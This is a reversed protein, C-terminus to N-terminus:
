RASTEATLQNALNPQCDPIQAAFARIFRVVGNPRERQPLHGCRPLLLTPVDPLHERFFELSGSPLFNDELGWILAAPVPVHRLDDPQVFQDEQMTAMLAAVFDRVTRRQFTEQFGRLGLYLLPRPIAVYFLPRLITGFMSRFVSWTSRLDRMSIREAFQQWADRGTTPAGGADLLVIGRVQEPASWALKVALWGGMSNGVILAPRGIVDRVFAEIVDRMEDLTAFTRGAPAGSLGYGPLDIAYVDHDCALPRIVLAWTLASDAIGHVLLIPLDANHQRGRNKATRRRAQHYYNITVGELRAQRQTAGGALVRHYALGDLLPVVARSLPEFLSLLRAAVPSLAPYGRPPQTNLTDKGNSREPAIM